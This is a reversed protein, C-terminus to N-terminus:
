DIQRCLDHQWDTPSPPKSINRGRLPPATSHTIWTDYLALHGISTWASFGAYVQQIGAELNFSGLEDSWFASWAGVTASVSQDCITVSYSWSRATLGVGTTARLRAIAM